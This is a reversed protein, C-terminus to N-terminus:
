ALCESSADREMMAWRSLGLLAVAEDTAPAKPPPERVEFQHLCPRRLHQGVRFAQSIPGAPDREGKGRRGGDALEKSLLFVLVPEATKLRIAFNEDSEILAIARKKTTSIAAKSRDRFAASSASSVETSASCRSTPCADSPQLQFPSAVAAPEVAGRALDAWAPPRWWEAAM